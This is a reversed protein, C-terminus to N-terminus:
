YIKLDLNNCWRINYGIMKRYQKYVVQGFPSVWKSFLASFLELIVKFGALDFTGWIYTVLILSDWIESWKARRGAM